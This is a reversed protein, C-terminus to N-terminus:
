VLGRYERRLGFDGCRFLNGPEVGCVEGHRFILFFYEFLL